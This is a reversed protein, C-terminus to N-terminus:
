DRIWALIQKASAAPASLLVNHGAWLIRSGRFGPCHRRLWPRVHWWPVIPDFAGSLHYVPLKLGCAGPRPDNAAILRYRATIAARDDPLLRREVFETVDACSEPDCHRRALWGYTGCAGKLVWAPVGGSTRRALWVGWPWPHKIFGGVLILGAFECKGEAAEPEPNITSRSLLEWAVQSSFSEGLIWCRRVGLERLGAELARAYDPLKWDLRRPYTTEILRAKGALQKRFPGLLTWDGHLGPLHLLTPLGAETQGRLQVRPSDVIRAFGTVVFLLTRFHPWGASRTL